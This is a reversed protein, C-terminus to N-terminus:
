SSRILFSYVAPVLATVLLIAFALPTGGGALASVVLLAGGAIFVLAGVRHTRLWVEPDRLTWPTRIGTLHNPPIKGLLDGMVMFLLGTGLWAARNIDIAYGLQARLVVLSLASMFATVALQLRHFVPRFREVQSAGPFLRAIAEFLAFVLLTTAPLAFAGFSRGAYGDAQGSWGWHIPVVAPLRHLAAAAAAFAVGVLALGLRRDRSV